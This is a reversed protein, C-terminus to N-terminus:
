YNFGYHANGTSERAALRNLAKSCSFEMGELLGLLRGEPDFLAIQTELNHGGSNAHARFHCRISSGRLPAFRRYREFRAPLPTMDRYTRSWIIALQFASDIIMPDIVWEGANVASVCEAPVSPVLTATMGEESISDISVIRQFLPGHFLWRKYVDAVSMSFPRLGESQPQTTEPPLPLRRGLLVTARYYNRQDSADSISVDVSLELREPDPQTEPRAFVRVTKSGNEIIIGNFVRLAEVGIVEFEPWGYLAAEAMLEMAIAAPLVPLGDLKHDRLYLDHDTDLVRIIEVGGSNTTPTLNRLLPLSLVDARPLAAEVRAWPGEGLIVEVDGKRGREIELIMARRGADPRIMQVGRDRFKRRVEPSVM